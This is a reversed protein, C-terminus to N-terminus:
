QPFKEKIAKIEKTWNDTGNQKDDYMLEFQNLKDYEAKRSRAYSQSEWTKKLEAQKAKIQDVSINKPNGDLWHIKEFDDEICSVQASPNIALIASCIDYM